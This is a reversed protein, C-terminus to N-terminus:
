EIEDLASQLKHKPQVGTMREVVKGRHFLLLTPLSNIGFESVISPYLATNVKAISAYGENEEAIEELIPALTRCPACSPSWFDVLVPLEAHAITAAFEDASLEAVRGMM